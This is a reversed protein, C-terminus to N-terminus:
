GNIKKGALIKNIEDEVALLEHMSEFISLALGFVVVAAILLGAIVTIKKAVSAEPFNILLAIAFILVLAAAIIGSILIFYAGIKILPKKM